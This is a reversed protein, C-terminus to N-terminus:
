FRLFFLTLFFFQSNTRVWFEPSQNLVNSPARTPQSSVQLPAGILQQQQSFSSLPWSSPFLIFEWTTGADLPSSQSSTPWTPWTLPVSLTQRTQTTLHPTPSSFSQQKWSDDLALPALTFTTGTIIDGVRVFAEKLTQYMQFMEDWHHAQEASKEMQTNQDKLSYLQALLESTVFDKVNNIILHM